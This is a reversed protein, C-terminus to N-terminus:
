RGHGMGAMEDASLTGDSAAAATFMPLHAEQSARRLNTLVRTLQADGAVQELLEDYMAINAVEGTAWNEAAAVLDAPASITGLYPNEPVDIGRRELQRILANVHRGEAQQITVYPEVPGFEDIVAGYAAFAAYEGDVGMLAEWAAAEASGDVVGSPLATVDVNADGASGSEDAEESPNPNSGDADASAGSAEGDAVVTTTAEEETGASSAEDDTVATTMENTSLPESESSCAALGLAVAIGVAASLL